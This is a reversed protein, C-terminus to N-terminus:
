SHVVRQPHVLCGTEGQNYGTIRWRGSFPEIGVCVIAGIYMVHPRPEM